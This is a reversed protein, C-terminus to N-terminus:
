AEGGEKDFIPVEQEKLIRAKFEPTMMKGCWCSGNAKMDLECIGTSECDRWNRIERGMGLKTALTAWCWEPHKADLKVALKWGISNQWASRLRDLIAYKIRKQFRM